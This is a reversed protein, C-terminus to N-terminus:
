IAGRGMYRWVSEQVYKNLKYARFIVTMKNMKVKKCAGDPVADLIARPMIVMEEVYVSIGKGQVRSTM